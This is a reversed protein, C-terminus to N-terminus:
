LFGRKALLGQENGNRSNRSPLVRLGSCGCRVKALDGLHNARASERKIRQAYM